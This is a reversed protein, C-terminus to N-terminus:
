KILLIQEYNSDSIESFFAANADEELPFVSITSENTNAPSSIVKGLTIGGVIGAMVVIVALIPRLRLTIVGLLGPKYMQEKEGEIRTMLRSYFWPDKPIIRDKQIFDLTKQVRDPRIQEM